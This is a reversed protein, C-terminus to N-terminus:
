EIVEDARALLSPPIDLGLAKATRLNIVLEFTTPQEIPLDGPKAGQLIKAIYSAAHSFMARQNPGYTVLAGTRAFESLGSIMPLRQRLAFNVILHRHPYTAASPLVILSEIGNKALTDFAAAYRDAIHVDALHLQIGTARSAEQLERLAANDSPLTEDFILGVRTLNPRIEKLFELYKRALEPKLQSLGTVNGGPHSLTTALGAEIPDGSIPMVIPITTTARKAALAAPESIAVIVDPELLTIETALGNLRELRGEAWRYHIRLNRGEGYGLAILADLLADRNRIEEEDMSSAAFLMGIRWVKRVQQADAALPALTLGLALVLGILRM